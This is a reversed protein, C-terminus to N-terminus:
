YAGYSLNPTSIQVFVPWLIPLQIVSLGFGDSGAVYSALGQKELGFIDRFQASFAIALRM